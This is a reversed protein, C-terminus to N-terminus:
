LAARVRSILAHLAPVWRWVMDVDRHVIAVHEFPRGTTDEDGLGMYKGGSNVDEIIIAPVQAEAAFPEVIQLCDGREISINM